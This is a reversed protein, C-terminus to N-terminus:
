RELERRDCESRLTKRVPRSWRECLTLGSRLQGVVSVTGNFSPRRRAASRQDIARGLAKSILATYADPQAIKPVSAEGCVARDAGTGALRMTSRGLCTVDETTSLCGPELGATPGRASAARCSSATAALPTRSGVA